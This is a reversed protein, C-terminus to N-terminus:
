FFLSNKQNPITSMDKFMEQLKKENKGKLKGIFWQM